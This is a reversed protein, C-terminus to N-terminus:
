FPWPRISFPPKEMINSDMLGNDTPLNLKALSKRFIRTGLEGIDVGERSALQRFVLKPITIGNNFMLRSGEKAQSTVLELGKKAEKSKANELDAPM